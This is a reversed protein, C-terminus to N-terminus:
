RVGFVVCPTVSRSHTYYTAMSSWGNRGVGPVVPGGARRGTGGAGRGAKGGALDVGRVWWSPLVGCLNSCKIYIILSPPWSAPVARGGIVCWRPGCGLWPVMTVAAATLPQEETWRVWGAVGGGADGGVVQDRDDPTGLFGAVAWGATDVGAAVGVRRRQGHGSPAPRPGQDHQEGWALAM